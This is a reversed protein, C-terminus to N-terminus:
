SRQSRTGDSAREHELEAIRKEAAVRLLREHVAADKWTPFEGPGTAEARLAHLEVYDCEQMILQADYRDMLRSCHHNHMSQMYQVHNAVAGIISDVAESQSTCNNGKGDWWWNRKLEAKRIGLRESLAVGIAAHLEFTIRGRINSDVWDLIRMLWSSM